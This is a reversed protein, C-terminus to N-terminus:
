VVSKRDIVAGDHLDTKGQFISTLLDYSIAADLVIGSEIVNRLGIEREIVILAGVRAQTLLEAATVIEEITEAVREPRELYRFFPARGLHALARRIDSQFLVIAAFGAYLLVNRILWSVTQLPFLQSVYFLALVLVLGIAMQAARTGRILKLAQYIIISVVLIDVVDWGSM